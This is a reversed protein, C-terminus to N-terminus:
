AAKKDKEELLKRVKVLEELLARLRVVDEEKTNTGMAFYTLKNLFMSYVDSFYRELIMSDQSVPKDRLMAPFSIAAQNESSIVYTRLEPAMFTKM